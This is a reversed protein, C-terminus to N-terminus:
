PRASGLDLKKWQRGSFKAANEASLPGNDKFTLSQLKPMAAIAAASADTVGTERISLEKLNPLTAIVQVTADTM